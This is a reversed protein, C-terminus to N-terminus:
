SRPSLAPGRSPRPVRGDPSHPPADIVSGFNSPRISASPSPVASATTVKVHKTKVKSYQQASREDVIFNMSTNSKESVEAGFYIPSVM